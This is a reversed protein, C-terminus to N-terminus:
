KEEILVYNELTDAITKPINVVELGIWTLYSMFIGLVPLTLFILVKNVSRRALNENELKTVRGNTKMTQELIKEHTGTHEELTYKIEKMAVSMETLFRDLRPDETYPQEPM